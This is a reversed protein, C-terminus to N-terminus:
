GDSRKPDVKRFIPVKWNWIKRIPLKFTNSYIINTLHARNESGRRHVVILDVFIFSRRSYNLRFSCDFLAICRNLYDYMNEM